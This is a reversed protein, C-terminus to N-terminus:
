RKSKPPKPALPVSASQLIEDLTPEAAGSIGITELQEDGDYIWIARCKFCIMFDYTTGKHKVRIAHRPEFCASAGSSSERVSREIARIITERQEPTSPRVSGLKPYAAMTGMHANAVPNGPDISSLEFDSGEKLAELYPSPITPGCGLCVLCAFAILSKTVINQIRVM